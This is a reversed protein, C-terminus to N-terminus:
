WKTIKFQNHAARCIERIAYYNVENNSVIGRGSPHWYSIILKDNWLYDNRTVKNADPFMGYKQLLHFTGGCLIVDPNIIKLEETLQDKDNALFEKLDTDNSSKQGNSKKINIVAISRINDDAQSKIKAEDYPLPPLETSDYIAQTWVAVRAWIPSNKKAFDAGESDLAATLDYGKPNDTYAEKLFFLVRPNQKTWKPLNVIGDTIFPQGAHNPKCRWKDFLEELQQKQDM